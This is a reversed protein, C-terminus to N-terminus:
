RHFIAWAVLYGCVFAITGATRSASTTRAGALDWYTWIFPTATPLMMAVMMVCWMLFTAVIVSPTWQWPSASNVAAQMQLSMNVQWVWSALVVAALGGGVIVLNRRAALM